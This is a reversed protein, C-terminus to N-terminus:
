GIDLVPLLQQLKHLVASGDDEIIEDLPEADDVIVYAMSWNSFMRQQQDYFALKPKFNIHRPDKKISQILGQLAEDPGEIYQCFRQGDFILLGTIHHEKNFRRAVKIIDAICTLSANPALQSFYVFNSFREAM